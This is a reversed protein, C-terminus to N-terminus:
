SPNSSLVLSSKDPEKESLSELLRVYHRHVWGDESTATSVRLWAGKTDKITVIEGKRLSGIIRHYTGPEQRLRLVNGTVVAKNVPGSNRQTLTDATSSSETVSDAIHMKKDLKNALIIENRKRLEDLILKTAYTNIFSQKQMISIVNAIVPSCLIISGLIAFFIGPATNAIKFKWGKLDSFLKFQRDTGTIFVRYGLYLCFIGGLSILVTEFGNSLGM